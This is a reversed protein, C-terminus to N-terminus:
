YCRVKLAKLDILPCIHSMNFPVLKLQHLPFIARLCEPSTAEDSTKVFSNLTWLCFHALPEPNAKIKRGKRTTLQYQEVSPM